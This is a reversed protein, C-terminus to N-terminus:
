PDVARILIEKVNIPDLSDDGAIIQAPKGDLRNGVEEIAWKEGENFAQVLKDAAKDLGADITSGSSRALARKIAQQWLKAGKANQNGVPAAM